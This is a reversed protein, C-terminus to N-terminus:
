RRRQGRAGRGAARFRGVAHRLAAQTAEPGFRGAVARVTAVLPLEGRAQNCGLHALRLNEEVRRGGDSEPVLHDLTEEGEPIVWGCLWCHTGQHARLYRIWPGTRMAHWWFGRNERYELPRGCVGCVPIGRHDFTFEARHGAGGYSPPAPSRGSGVGM